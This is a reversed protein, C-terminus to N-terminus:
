ETEGKPALDRPGTWDSGDHYTFRPKEGELVLKLDVDSYTCVEDAAKSGVILFSAPADSRNIFRHGNPAGAKWAACDGPAMATEGEDEVLVLAGTLVIAFEDERLHWHRLSAVAKPELTVINVGFQTLGALQGLRLSSRGEMQAAYPEPYISGTKRPAQGLDLKPM